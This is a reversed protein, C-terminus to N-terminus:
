KVCNWIKYRMRLGENYNTVSKVNDSYGDRQICIMPYASYAICNGFEPASLWYDLNYNEDAGLFTDYFKGNVIYCHLGSLKGELKAISDTIPVPLSDYFGGLFIDFDAPVESLLSIFRDYAGACVFQLDNEFLLVSNEGADKARQICKKHSRSIAQQTNKYSMEAPIIEYGVIGQIEFERLFSQERDKNSLDHIVFIQM